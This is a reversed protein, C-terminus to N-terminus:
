LPTTKIKRILTKTASAPIEYCFAQRLNKGAWQNVDPSASSLYAKDSISGIIFYTKQRGFMSDM